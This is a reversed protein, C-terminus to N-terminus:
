GQRGSKAGRELVLCGKAAERQPIAPVCLVLKPAVRQQRRLEGKKLFAPLSFVSLSVTAKSRWKGWIPLLYLGGRCLRSFGCVSSCAIPKRRLTIRWFCRCASPEQMAAQFRRVM